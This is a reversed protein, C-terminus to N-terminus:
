GKRQVTPNSKALFNHDGESIAGFEKIPHVKLSCALMIKEFLMLRKKTLVVGSASYFEGV